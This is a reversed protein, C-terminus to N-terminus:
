RGINGEPDVTTVCHGGPVTRVAWTHGQRDLGGGQATHPLETEWVTTGEVSLRRM